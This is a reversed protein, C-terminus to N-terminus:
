KEKGKASKLLTEQLGFAMVGCGLLGVGGSFVSAGALVFTSGIWGILLPSLTGSVDGILRWVGLFTSRNDAPAFDAGLTMIIGGGLGNAVGTFLAVCLFAGFTVSYPLVLLCLSLLLLCPIAAWKRGWRDSIQGGAYLLLVDALASLGVILGIESNDLGIHLGWLPLLLQRAGKVLRLIMVFLAANLLVRRHQQLLAALAAVLAKFSQKKSNQTVPPFYWVSPLLACLCLAAGALFASDYGYLQAMGGGILPGLFVGARQVGVFGAMTRGRKHRVTKGSVFSHRTLTWGGVGVGFLLTFLAMSLWQRSLYLGLCAIAMTTLSLLILKKEGFRRVALGAPIDVLLIGASRLALLGGAGAISADTDFSGLPLLLLLMGNVIAILLTM